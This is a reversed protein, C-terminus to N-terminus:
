APSPLSASARAAPTSGGGAPPLSRSRILEAKRAARVRCALDAAEWGRRIDISHVEVAGTGRAVEIVVADGRNIRRTEPLILAEDIIPRGWQDRTFEAEGYPQGNAYIALQIGWSLAKYRASGLSATTKVDVVIHDGRGDDALIDRTGAHPEPLGLTVINEESAAVTLGLRGLAHVVAEADRVVDADLADLSRGAHLAEVAQHIATGHGAEPKGRRRDAEQYIAKYSRWDDSDILAAQSRLDKSRMVTQVTVSAVYGFLGSKDDLVGATTSPRTCTISM